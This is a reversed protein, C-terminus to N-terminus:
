DKKPGLLDDASRLSRAKPSRTANRGARPRSVDPSTAPSHPPLGRKSPDEFADQGPSLGSGATVKGDSGGLDFGPRDESGTRPPRAAARLDPYEAPVSPQEPGSRTGIKNM